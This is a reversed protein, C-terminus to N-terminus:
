ATEETPTTDLDPSAGRSWLDYAWRKQVWHSEATWGGLHLMLAHVDLAHGDSALLAFARRLHIDLDDRHAGLVAMALADVTSEPRDRGLARLDRGFSGGHADDEARVRVRTSAVLSAVLLADDLLPGVRQAPPPDGRENSPLTVLRLLAADAAPVAGFRHGTGQRLAALRALAPSDHRAADYQLSALRQRLQGAVSRRFEDTM